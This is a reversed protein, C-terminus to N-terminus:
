GRRIVHAAYLVPAGFTRDLSAALARDAVAPIAYRQVAYQDRPLLDEMFPLGPTYVFRGGPQLACLIAMYRRAYREPRGDQRLHHHLFHTAFAMHSIIAGWYGARLPYDLWDGALIVGDPDPTLVAAGAAARDVGVAAVGQARLHHVLRGTPGCGLDLVPDTLHAPTLHLVQMQLAAAYESCVPESFLFAAGGNRAALGRVVTQLDAQHAIMVGDLAAQLDQAHEAVLVADRFDRLFADYAAALDHQTQDDMRVFQNRQQIFHVMHATFFDLLDARQSDTAETQRTLWDVVAARNALMYALQTDAFQRFATFPYGLVEWSLGGFRRYRILAYHKLVQEVSDSHPM